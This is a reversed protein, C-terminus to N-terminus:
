RSNLNSALKIFIKNLQDAEKYFNKNELATIVRHIKNFATTGPTDLNITTLKEIERYLDYKLLTVKLLDSHGTQLLIEIRNRLDELNDPNKLQLKAKEVIDKAFQDINFNRYKSPLLYREDYNPNRAKKRAFEKLKKINEIIRNFLEKLKPNRGSLMDLQEGFLDEINKQASQVGSLDGRKAAANAEKLYYLVKDGSSLSQVDIYPKIAQDKETPYLNINYNTSLIRFLEDKEKLYSKLFVQHDTNLLFSIGKKLDNPFLTKAKSILEEAFKLMDGNFPLTYEEPISRYTSGRQIADNLFKNTAADARQKLSRLRRNGTVLDFPKFLSEIEEKIAIVGNVDGSLSRSYCTKILEILRNEDFIQSIIVKSM